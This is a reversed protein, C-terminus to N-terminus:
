SALPQGPVGEGISAGDQVETLCSSCEKRWIGIMEELAKAATETLEVFGELIPLFEARAAAAESQWAGERRPPDEIRARGPVPDLIRRIEAVPVALRLVLAQIERPTLPVQPEGTLLKDLAGLYAELEDVQDLIREENNQNREGM